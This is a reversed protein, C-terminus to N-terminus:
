ATGDPQGEMGSVGTRELGGREEPYPVVKPYDAEAVAFRNEACGGLMLLSALILTLLRKM